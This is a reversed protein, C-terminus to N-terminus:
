SFLIELLVAHKATYFSSKVWWFNISKVVYFAVKQVKTFESIWLGKDYYGIQVFIQRSLTTILRLNQISSHNHVIGTWNFSGFFQDQCLSSFSDSNTPLFSPYSLVQHLKLPKKETNAKFLILLGHLSPWLGPRKVIKMKISSSSFVWKLINTGPSLM